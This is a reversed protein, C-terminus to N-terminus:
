IGMVTAQSEATLNMVRGFSLGSIMPTYEVTAHVTVVPITAASLYIGSVTETGVTSSKCTLTVTVSPAGGSVTANWYGLRPQDSVAPAPKGFRVVNQTNTVIAPTNITGAPCTYNTFGQRAAYRAGDRVAKVVVHEDVFYRGVEFSGFMLVLMFPLVMGMEAAAAADQDKWLRGITSRIIMM